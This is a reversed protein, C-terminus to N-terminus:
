PLDCDNPIGSPGPPLFFRERMFQLDIFNIIGDDNFDGDPNWSPQGPNSFFGGNLMALDAFNVLCDTVPGIDGDCANGIGDGDSDTQTPNADVVCNDLEDLFIFGSSETKEIAERTIQEMDVLKEQEERILYNRAESIKM